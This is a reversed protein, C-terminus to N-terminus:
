PRGVVFAMDADRLVICTPNDLVWTVIMSDLAQVMM